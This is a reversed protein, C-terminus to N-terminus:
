NPRGTIQNTILVKQWQKEEKKIIKSHQVKPVQPTINLTEDTEKAKVREMELSLMLTRVYSNHLMMLTLLIPDVSQQDAVTKTALEM